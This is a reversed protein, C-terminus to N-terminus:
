NGRLVELGECAKSSGASCAKEILAIGENSSKPVGQGAIYYSGLTECYQPQLTCAKRALEVARTEDKPLGDGSMAHQALLECGRGDGDRCGQELLEFARRDDPATGEGRMHMGAASTCSAAMKPCTRVHLELARKMDLPVGEDGLLLFGALMNCSEPDDLTCGKELWAVAAPRDRPTGKGLARRMGADFCATKVADQCFRDFTALVEATAPASRKPLGAPAPPAASPSPAAPDAPAAVQSGGASSENGGSVSGSKGCATALLGVLVKLGDRMTFRILVGSRDLSTVGRQLQSGRNYGGCAMPVTLRRELGM